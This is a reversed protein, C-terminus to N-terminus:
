YYLIWADQNEKKYKQNLHNKADSISNCSIYAVFYFNNKPGQISANFGDNKLKNFYKDANEKITFSGAIIHYHSNKSLVDEQVLKEPYLDSKSITASTATIIIKENEYDATLDSLYNIIETNNYFPNEASDLLRKEKKEIDATLNSLYNIIKTNNSLPNLSSDLLRKKNNIIDIDTIISSDVYLKYNEDSIEKEAYKNDSSSDGYCYLYGDRSAIYLKNDWVVPTAEFVGKILASLRFEQNQDYDFCYLGQYGAVILKNNFFIPTSISPGIYYRFIEKPMYYDNINLPGKIQMKNNIIEHSVIYLYGDICAFAAMCLGNQCYYDNVSPSGIVGGNWDAYSDNGTPFYWIICDAPSKAPNVKIVGGKGQIYQKEISILLCNDKTVVPSGNLDAMLYLDWDITKSKLNYGYVHGSGSTIYIHNNLLCPSSENVLNGGHLAIDKNTYTKIEQIIEPQLLSDALVANKNDPNLITFIGNELGIYATDNLLLASGDVDRSYSDTKKINLSWLEKGTLYSIARFSPTTKSYITKNLGRRSGQLIIYKEESTLAKENIWFTGTGKIIDGFNYNWILEGTEADIKKLFHDYSGIILYNHNQEQILLPQGTWGAGSYIKEGESPKVVSLGSGLNHKWIFNLKAPPNKGYYNKKNNGLFTGIKVDIYKRSCYIQKICLKIKKPLINSDSRPASSMDSCSIITFSFISIVTIILFVTYINDVFRKIINRKKM